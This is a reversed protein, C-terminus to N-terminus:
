NESMLGRLSPTSPYGLTGPPSQSDDYLRDFLSAERGEKKESLGGHARVTMM